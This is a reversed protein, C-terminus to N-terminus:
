WRPFLWKIWSGWSSTSTASTTAPAAPDVIIILGEGQKGMRYQHRLAAEKGRETNLDAIDARLDAERQSLDALYMASERSLAASERERQYIRWVGSVGVLVLMALVLMLVRRWFLRVPDTRQSFVDM